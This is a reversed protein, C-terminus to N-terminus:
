WCLPADIIAADGYAPQAGCLAINLSSLGPAPWAHKCQILLPTRCVQCAQLLERLSVTAAEQSTNMALQDHCAPLKVRTPIQAHPALPRMQSQEIRPNVTTNAVKSQRSSQHLLPTLRPWDSGYRLGLNLSVVQCFDCLRPVRSIKHDTGHFNM